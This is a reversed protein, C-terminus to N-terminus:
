PTDVHELRSIEYYFVVTEVVIYLIFFIRSPPRSHCLEFVKPDILM